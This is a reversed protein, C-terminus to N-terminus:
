LRAATSRSTRDIRRSTRASRATVRRHLIASWVITRCKAACDKTRRAARSGTSVIAVLTIPVVCRSLPRRSLDVSQFRHQHDRRILNVSVIVPLIVEALLIAEATVLRVRCRLRCGIDQRPGETITIELWSSHGDGRRAAAVDDAAAIEGLITENGVNNPGDESPVM